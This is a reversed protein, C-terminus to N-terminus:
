ESTDQLLAMDVNSQPVTVGPPVTVLVTYMLFVPVPSESDRVRVVVLQFGVFAFPGIVMVQFWPAVVSVGPCDTVATIVREAAGLM